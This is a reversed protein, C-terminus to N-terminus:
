SAAIKGLLAQRVSLIAVSLIVPSQSQDPWVGTLIDGLLYIYVVANREDGGRRWSSSQASRRRVSLEIAGYNLLGNRPNGQSKAIGSATLSRLLAVLWCVVRGRLDGATPKAERPDRATAEVVQCTLDGLMPHGSLNRPRIQLRVLRM